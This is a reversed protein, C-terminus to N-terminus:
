FFIRRYIPKRYWFQLYLMPWLLYSLVVNPAEYHIDDSIESGGGPLAEIRHLHKWSKLFFPLEVGEDIFFFQTVGEQHDSIHSTWRQKFFGFNLELSVIDGTKSGDFRLLKVPPFPPALREFLTADFGAWVQQANQRVTTKLLIRPM